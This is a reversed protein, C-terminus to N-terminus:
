LLGHFHRAFVIGMDLAFALEMGPFQFLQDSFILQVQLVLSVSQLPQHFGFGFFIFQAPDDYVVLLSLDDHRIGVFRHRLVIGVQVIGVQYAFAHFAFASGFHPGM